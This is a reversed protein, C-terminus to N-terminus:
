RRRNPLRKIQRLGNFRVERLSKIPFAAKFTSTVHNTDAHGIFNVKELPCGHNQNTLLSIDYNRLHLAVKLPVAKEENGHFM